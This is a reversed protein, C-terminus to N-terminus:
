WWRMEFQQQQGSDMKQETTDIADQLIQPDFGASDYGELICDIYKQSPMGLQHSEPMIYVYASVSQGDVEVEMDEKGYFNPYGEYFDLALEDQATTEWLLIPVTKGECPEITAYSGTKSGRFVLEYDKIESTHVAKANPCRYKMQHINLNSGYAIYLKGENSKFKNQKSM